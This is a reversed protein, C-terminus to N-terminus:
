NKTTSIYKNNNNLIITLLQMYHNVTENLLGM